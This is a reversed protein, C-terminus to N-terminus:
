FMRLLLLHLEPYVNQPTKLRQLWHLQLKGQLYASCYGEWGYKLIKLTKKHKQYHKIKKM